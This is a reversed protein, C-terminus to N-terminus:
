TLFFIRYRICYSPHNKKFTFYITGERSRKRRPYKITIKPELFQKLLPPYVVGINMFFIKFLANCNWIYKYIQLCRKETFLGMM